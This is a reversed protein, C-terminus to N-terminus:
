GSLLLYRILLDFVEKKLSYIGLFECRKSEELDM